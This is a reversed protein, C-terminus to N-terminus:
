KSMMEKLTQAEKQACSALFVEDIGYVIFSYGQKLCLSLKKEDPHVIHYGFPKNYKKSLKEYTALASRIEPRTFDGPYGLSASLDYPGIMTADIDPSSLIDDLNNIAEIHEIQAVVAINKKYWKIYEDFQMGYGQARSLGVGRKGKPSYYVSEVIADVDSKSNVMPVIIGYAGAELAKKIECPENQAVRVFPIVNHAEIMMIMEQMRELGIATHERDVVLFEFGSRALIEVSTVSPLNIWSGYVNMHKSLKTKISNKLFKM